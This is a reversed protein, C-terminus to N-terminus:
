VQHRQKEQNSLILCPLMIVEYFLLLILLAVIQVVEQQLAALVARDPQHQPRSALQNLLDLGLRLFVGVVDGRHGDVSPDVLVLLDVRELLLSVQEDGRGSPEDVEDVVLFNVEGFDDVEHEVLCITHEIHAEFGLYLLYELMNGMLLVMM